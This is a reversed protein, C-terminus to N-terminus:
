TTLLIASFLHSKQKIDDNPFNTMPLMFATWAIGYVIDPNSSFPQINGLVASPSFSTPVFLISIMIGALRLCFFPWYITLVAAILICSVSGKPKKQRM